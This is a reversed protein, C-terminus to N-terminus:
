VKIVEYIDQKDSYYLVIQFTDLQQLLKLMTEDKLKIHNDSNLVQVEEETFNEVSYENSKTKWVRKLQGFVPHPQIEIPFMSVLQSPLVEIEIRQPFYRILKFKMM